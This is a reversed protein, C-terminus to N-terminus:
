NGDLLERVARVIEGDSNNAYAVLLDDGGDSPELVATILDSLRTGRRFLRVEEDQSQPLPSPIHGIGFGALDKSIGDVVAPGLRNAGVIARLERMEVVVLPEKDVRTSLRRYEDSKSM